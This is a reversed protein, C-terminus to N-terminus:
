HSVFRQPKISILTTVNVRSELSLVFFHGEGVLTNRADRCAKLFGSPPASRSPTIAIAAAKNKVICDILAQTAQTYFEKLHFIEVPKVEISDKLEKILKLVNSVCEDEVQPRTSNYIDKFPPLAELEKKLAGLYTLFHKQENESTFIPSAFQTILRSIVNPMPSAAQIAAQITAPLRAKVILEVEPQLRFIIQMVKESPEQSLLHDFMDGPNVRALENFARSIATEPTARSAIVVGTYFIIPASHPSSSILEAYYRNLIDIATGEQMYYSTDTDVLKDQMKQEIEAASRLLKVAKEGDATLVTNGDKYLRALMKTAKLHGPEAALQYYKLAEVLNKEKEYMLGLEYQSQAHGQDAVKHRWKALERERVEKEVDYYHFRYGQQYINLLTLQADFYGGEAALHFYHLAKQQMEKNRLAKRHYEDWGKSYLKRPDTETEEQIIKKEEKGEMVFTAAGALSKPNNHQM